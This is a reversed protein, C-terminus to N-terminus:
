THIVLPLSTSVSWFRSGYLDTRVQLWALPVAIVVSLLTVSGVLLLTRILIELVKIRLLLDLGSAGAGVSRILLYVPAVVLLLTICLAPIWIFM